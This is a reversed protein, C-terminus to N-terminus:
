IPSVLHITAAIVIGLIVGALAEPVTHGTLENMNKSKTIKKLTQINKGVAMRLRIADIFIVVTLVISIIFANSVGELIYFSATLASISATHSSPMYGSSLILKSNFKQTKFFEVVPKLFQSLLCALLVAVIIRNAVLDILLEIM